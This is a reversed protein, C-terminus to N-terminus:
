IGFLYLNISFGQWFTTLYLPSKFATAETSQSLCCLPGHGLGLILDGKVSAIVFLDYPGFPGPDKTDNSIVLHKNIIM